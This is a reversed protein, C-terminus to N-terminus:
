KLAILNEVIARIRRQKIEHMLEKSREKDIERCKDSKWSHNDSKRERLHSLLFNEKSYLSLFLSSFFVHFFINFDIWFIYAFLKIQSLSLYIFLLLSPDLIAIWISSFFFLLTDLNMKIRPEGINNEGVTYHIIYIM